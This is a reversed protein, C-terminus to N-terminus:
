TLQAPCDLIEKEDRDLHKNSEVVKSDKQAEHTPDGITAKVEIIESVGTKQMVM